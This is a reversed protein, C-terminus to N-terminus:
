KLPTPQSTAVDVPWITVKKSAGDRWQEVISRTGSNRGKEDFRIYEYPAITKDGPIDLRLLASRVTQADLVGGDQVALRLAATLTQLGRYCLSAYGSPMLDYKARYAEVFPQARKLDSNFYDVVALKVKDVLDPSVLTPLRVHGAGNGIGIVYPFYDLDRMANLGAVLDELYSTWIVITAGTERLKTILPLM